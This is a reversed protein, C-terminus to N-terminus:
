DRGEAMSEITPRELRMDWFSSINAEGLKGKKRMGVM